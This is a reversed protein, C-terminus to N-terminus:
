NRLLLERVLSIVRGGRDYGSQDETLAGSKMILNIVVRKGRRTFTLAQVNEAIVVSGPGSAGQDRWIRAGDFRFTVPDSFLGNGLSLNARLFQATAGDALSWDDDIWGNKNTDEFDVDDPDNDVDEASISAQRLETVMREMVAHARGSSQTSNSSTVYMRQGTMALALVGGCMVTCIAAAFIVEILTFGRTRM